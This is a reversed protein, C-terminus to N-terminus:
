ELTGEYGLEQAQAYVLNVTLIEEPTLSGDGNWASNSADVGDSTGLSPLECATFGVSLTMLALAGVLLKKAKKM